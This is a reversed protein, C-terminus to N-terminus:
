WNGPIEGSVEPSIRELSASFGDPSRPWPESSGFRVRDVRKGSGDVLEVAEGKKKLAGQFVGFPQVRYADAFLAPDSALVLAGGAAIRAGQPFTYTIGKAFRWGSLDAETTGSNLIEVFQLADLDGPAHYMIENIVVGGGLGRLTGLALAWAVM